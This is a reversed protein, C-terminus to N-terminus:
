RDLSRHWLHLVRVKAHYGMLCSQDFVGRPATKFIWRNIKGHNIRLRYGQTKHVSSIDWMKTPIGNELAYVYPQSGGEKLSGTPKPFVLALPDDLDLEQRRVFSTRTIPKFGLVLGCDRAESLLWQLPYLACGDQANSGGLDGHTGLFWAQLLSHEKSTARLGYEPSDEAVCWIEPVFTKKLENLALAQRCHQLSDVLSIDYLGDDDLAKVTDLVGIFRVKPPTRCKSMYDHISGKKMGCGHRVDKYLTLAQQYLKEFSSADPIQMYHLLNAVARVAFAGRSFGFFYIEDDPDSTNDCCYKYVEKIQENIGTGFVGGGVKGFWKHPDNLGKFYISRQRWIKGTSDTVEGEKISCHIRYINSINGEFAQNIGDPEGWTGDVCVILRLPIRSTLRPKGPPKIKLDEFDGVLTSTESDPIKM